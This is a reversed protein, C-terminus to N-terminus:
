PTDWAVPIALGTPAGASHEDHLQRAPSAPGMRHETPTAVSFRRQVGFPGVVSAGCFVQVGTDPAFPEADAGVTVDDAPLQAGDDASAGTLAPGATAHPRVPSPPSGSAPEAGPGVHSEACAQAIGTVRGAPEGNPMQM